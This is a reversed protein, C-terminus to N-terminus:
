KSICKVLCYSNVLQNIFTYSHIMHSILTTDNRLGRVCLSCELMCTLIMQSAVGVIDDIWISSIVKFTETNKIFEPNQNARGAQRQMGFFKELADQNIKGSFFSCVGPIEEFLYPILEVFSSVTFYNTYIWYDIVKGTIYIGDQTERPLMMMRKEADSFGKWEKVSNEWAKLYALFETLVVFSLSYM